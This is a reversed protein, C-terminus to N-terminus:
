PSPAAGKAPKRHVAGARRTEFQIAELGSSLLKEPDFGELDFPPYKPTVRRQYADVIGALWGTMEQIESEEAVISLHVKPMLEPQDPLGNYLQGMWGPRTNWDLRWLRTSAPLFSDGPHLQALSVEHHARNHDRWRVVNPQGPIRRTKIPSVARSFARLCGEKLDQGFDDRASSM